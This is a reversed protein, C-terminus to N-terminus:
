PPLAPASLRPIRVHFVATMICVLLSNLPVLHVFLSHKDRTHASSNTTVDLQPSIFLSFASIVMVFAHNESVCYSYFDCVYSYIRGKQIFNCTQTM